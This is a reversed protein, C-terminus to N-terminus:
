TDLLHAFFSMDPHRHARPLRRLYDLGVQIEPFAPKRKEGPQLLHQALALQWVTPLPVQPLVWLLQFLALHMHRPVSARLIHYLPVDKGGVLQQCMAKKQLLPKVEEWRRRVVEGPIDLHHLLFQQTSQRVETLTVRTHFLFPGTEANYVELNWGDEHYYAYMLAIAGDLIENERLLGLYQVGLLFTHLALRKTLALHAMFAVVASRELAEM